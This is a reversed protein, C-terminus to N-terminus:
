ASCEIRFGQNEVRLGLVHIGFWQTQCGSGSGLVEAGLDEVEFRWAGYARFGSDQRVNVNSEVEQYPGEDKNQALNRQLWRYTGAM